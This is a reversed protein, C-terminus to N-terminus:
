HVACVHVADLVVITSLLKNVICGYIRIVQVFFQIM